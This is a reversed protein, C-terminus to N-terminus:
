GPLIFPRNDYNAGGTTANGSSTNIFLSSAPSSRVNFFIGIAYAAQPFAVSFSEGPQFFNRLPDTRQAALSASGISNYVNNIQGQVDTPFTYTIGNLSNDSPILTNVASGEYTETTSLYSTAGLAAFFEASSTYTMSAAHAPQITTLVGVAILATSATIIPLVKIM